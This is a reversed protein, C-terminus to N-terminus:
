AAIRFGIAGSPNRSNDSTGVYMNATGDTRNNGCWGSITGFFYFGNDIDVTMNAPFNINARQDRNIVVNPEMIYMPLDSYEGLSLDGAAVAQGTENVVLSDDFSRATANPSFVFTKNKPFEHILRSSTPTELLGHYPM